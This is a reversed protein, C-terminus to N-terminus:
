QDDEEGESYFAEEYGGQQRAWLSYHDQLYRAGHGLLRNTPLTDVASLRSTVECTVAIQTQLSAQPGLTNPDSLLGMRTLFTTILTTFFSYNGFLETAIDADKMEQNLRDGAERLLLGIVKEVDDDASDTELDPPTFPIEDAIETLRNVVEKMGDEEKVGDDESGGSRDQVVPENAQAPETDSTQPSLCSFFIRKLGKKKKKETKEEKETRAPTQPSPSGNVSTGGNVSCSSDQPPSKVDKERRRRRKAYAMLLRFEVSDAMDDADSTSTPDCDTDGTPSIPHFIEVHSNVM